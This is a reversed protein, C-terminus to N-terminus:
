SSRRSYLCGVPLPLNSKSTNPVSTCVQYNWALTAQCLSAAITSVLITITFEVTFVVLTFVEVKSVVVTLTLVEIDIMLVVATFVEFISALPPPVVIPSWLRTSTVQFHVWTGFNPPCLHILQSAEQPMHLPKKKHFQPIPTPQKNGGTLSNLGLKGVVVYLM